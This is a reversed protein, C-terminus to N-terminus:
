TIIINGSIWREEEERGGILSISEATIRLLNQKIYLLKEMVKECACGFIIWPWILKSQLLVKQSNKRFLNLLAMM